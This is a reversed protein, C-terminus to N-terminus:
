RVRKNWNNKNTGYFNTHALDKYIKNIIKKRVRKIIPMKKEIGYLIDDLLFDGLEKDTKYESHIMQIPYGSLGIPFIPIFNPITGIILAVSRKEFASKIREKSSIRDKVDEKKLCDYSIRGVTWATRTISGLIKSRIFANIGSIEGSLFPLYVFYLGTTLSGIAGLGIIHMFFDFLYSSIKEKDLHGCLYDARATSIRGRQEAKYIRGRIYDRVKESRYTDSVIFRYTNKIKEYGLDFINNPIHIFGKYLRLALGESENVGLLNKEASNYGSNIKSEIGSNKEIQKTIHELDEKM